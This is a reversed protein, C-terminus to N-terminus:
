SGKVLRALRKLRNQISAQVPSDQTNEITESSAPSDGELSSSELQQAMKYFLDIKEFLNMPNGKNDPTLFFSFPHTM